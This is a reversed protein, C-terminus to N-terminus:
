GTTRAIPERELANVGARCVNYQKVRTASAFQGIYHALERERAAPQNKVTREFSRFRSASELLGQELQSKVGARTKPTPVRRLEALISDVDEASGRAAALYAARQERALDREVEERLKPNSSRLRSLSPHVGSFVTQTVVARLQSALSLCLTGVHREFHAAAVDRNGSAGCGAVIGALAISVAAPIAIRRIV